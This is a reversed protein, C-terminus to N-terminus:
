YIFLVTVGDRTILAASEGVFIGSKGILHKLAHVTRQALIPDQVTEMTARLLLSKCQENWLCILWVISCVFIQFLTVFQERQQTYEVIDKYFKMAGVAAIICSYSKWCRLTLFAKIKEPGCNIPPYGLM